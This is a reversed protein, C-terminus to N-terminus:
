QTSQIPCFSRKLAMFVPNALVIVPLSLCLFPLSTLQFLFPMFNRALHQISALFSNIVQELFLISIIQMDHCNSDRYCVDLDKMELAENKLIFRDFVIFINFGNPSDISNDIKSM